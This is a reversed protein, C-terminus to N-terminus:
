QCLDLNMLNACVYDISDLYKKSLDISKAIKSRKYRRNIKRILGSLRLQKTGRKIHFYKIFENSRNNYSALERAFPLALILDHENSINFVESTNFVFGTPKAIVVTSSKNIHAALGSLSHVRSKLSRFFDYNNTLVIVNSQDIEIMDKIYEIFAYRNGYDFSDVVDDL